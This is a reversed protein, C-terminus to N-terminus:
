RDEVPSALVLISEALGLAQDSAVSGVEVTAQKKKKKKKKRLVRKEEWFLKGINKRENAEKGEM